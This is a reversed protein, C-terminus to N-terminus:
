QCAATIMKLVALPDQAQTIPRGVVLYDAGALVAQKPTAVRAQDQLAFGEPRIGPVLVHLSPHKEKIMVLEHASAVVGHAHARKALNALEDIQLSMSVNRQNLLPLTEQDHSTLYTVALIGTREQGHRMAADVASRVMAEGGLAHVTMLSVGMQAANAVANAVTNPIDHFKLDLFITKGKAILQEVFANGFALYAELGIKYHTATDGLMEILREMKTRDSFDLAVYVPVNM